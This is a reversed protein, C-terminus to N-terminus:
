VGHRALIAPHQSCGGLGGDAGNRAVPAAVGVPEAPAPTWIMPNDNVPWGIGAFWHRADVRHATILVCQWYRAETIPTM